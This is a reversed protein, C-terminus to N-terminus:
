KKSIQIGVIQNPKDDICKLGAKAFKDAEENLLIGSHGQVQHFNIPIEDMFKRVYDKYAQTAPKNTKWKGTVWCEIGSYDYYLDIDKPKYEKAYNLAVLVAWIEGGVNWMSVYEPTMIKGFIVDAIYQEDQEDTVLIAAYGAADKTKKKNFSGDTYIIM